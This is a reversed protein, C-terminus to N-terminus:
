IHKGEGIKRGFDLVRSSSKAVMESISIKLFLNKSIEKFNDIDNNPDHLIWYFIPLDTSHPNNGETHIGHPYLFSFCFM